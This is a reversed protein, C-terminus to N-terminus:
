GPDDEVPWFGFDSGDGPHAGFYCGGPARENLAAFLTENLLYSAEEGYWWPDDDCCDIGAIYGASYCVVGIPADELGRLVEWYRSADLRHLLSFLAPILDQPRLTGHIVTAGPYPLIEDPM